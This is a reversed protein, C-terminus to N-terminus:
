KMRQISDWVGPVEISCFKKLSKGRQKESLAEKNCGKLHKTPIEKKSRRTMSYQNHLVTRLNIMLERDQYMSSGESLSSEKNCDELCENKSNNNVRLGSGKYMCRYVTWWEGAQWEITWIYESNYWGMWGERQNLIHQRLPWCEPNTKCQPSMEQHLFAEMEQMSLYYWHVLFPNHALSFHVLWYNMTCSKFKLNNFVEGLKAKHWCRSEGLLSKVRCILSTQSATFHLRQSACHICSWQRGFVITTTRRTYRHIILDHGLHYIYM